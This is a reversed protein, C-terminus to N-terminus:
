ESQRAKALLSSLARLEQESMHGLLRRHGEIMPGDLRKLLRLGEETIRATVYRRDEASRRRVVLGMDELRDLLRTADPMRAVLREGVENRCLGEEGAGRDAHGAGDGHQLQRVLLM